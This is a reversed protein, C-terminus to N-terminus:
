IDVNKIRKSPFLKHMEQRGISHSDNWLEPEYNYMGDVGLRVNKAHDKCWSIFKLKPSDIGTGIAKRDCYSCFNM